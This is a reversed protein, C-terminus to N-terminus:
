VTSSLWSRVWRKVSFRRRLVVSGDRCALRWEGGSRIVTGPHFLADGIEFREFAWWFGRCSTPLGPLSATGDKPPDWVCLVGRLFHWVREAGWESWNVLGLIESPRVSRAMPTPSENPQAERPVKGLEFQRLVDLLMPVGIAGALRRLMQGASDGPVVSVRERAIVDGTDMGEDVYHITMGAERDFAHWTWFLPDPGRHRPLLSPHLNIVGRTPVSLVDPTLIYPHSFVVMLDPRLEALGRALAPSDKRDHWLLPVGRRTALSELARRREAHIGTPRAPGVIAVVNVGADLLGSLLPEAHQTAVVIRMPLRSM